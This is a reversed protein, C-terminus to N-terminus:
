RTTKREFGDAIASGPVVGLAEAAASLDAIRADGGKM